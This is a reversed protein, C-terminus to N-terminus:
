FVDRIESIEDRFEDHMIELDYKRYVAHYKVKYEWYGDAQSISRQEVFGFKWGQLRKQDSRRCPYGTM